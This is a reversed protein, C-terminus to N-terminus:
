TSEQSAFTLVITGDPEQEESEFHLGNREARSLVKEYVARQVHRGYEANLRAVDDGLMEDPVVGETEAVYTGDATPAFRVECGRIEAVLLEGQRAVTAGLEILAGMLLDPDRATTYARILPKGSASESAPVSNLQVVRAGGALVALALPILLVEISM